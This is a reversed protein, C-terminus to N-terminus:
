SASPAVQSRVVSKSVVLVPRQDLAVAVRGVEGGVAGVVQVLAGAAEVLDHDHQRRGRRAVDAPVLASTAATPSSGSALRSIRSPWSTLRTRSPSGTRILLRAPVTTRSSSRTSATPAVGGAVRQGRGRDVLLDVEVQVQPAPLGVVVRDEVDLVRVGPDGRHQAVGGVEPM